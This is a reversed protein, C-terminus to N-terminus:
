AEKGYGDGMYVIQHCRSSKPRRMRLLGPYMVTEEYTEGDIAAQLNEATTKVEFEPTFAEM